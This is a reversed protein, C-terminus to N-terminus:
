PSCCITAVNALTIHSTSSGSAQCGVGQPMGGAYIYSSYSARQQYIPVCTDDARVPHAGNSCSADTYLTVTGSCSGTVACACDSCSLSAGTGVLHLSSMPGPPCSATGASMICAKYAGAIIPACANGNCNASQASNPTCARDKSAYALGGSAITGPTNCAGGSPPPSTYQVDFSAYSGQYLDTGCSGPPSNALPGTGPTALLSCNGGGGSGTVNDYHVSVTGGACTPQTTVACSGCSCANPGATAGEVLDSSMGTFGAPCATSQTSAFAVLTWGSPVLVCPSANGTCSGADSVITGDPGLNSSPGADVPTAADNLARADVDAGTGDTRTRGSDDGHIPTGAPANAGPGTGDGTGSVQALGNGDLSCGPGLFAGTFAIPLYALARM